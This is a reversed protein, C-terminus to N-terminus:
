VWTPRLVAALSTKRPEASASQPRGLSAQRVDNTVHAGYYTLGIGLNDAGAGAGRQEWLLQGGKYFQLTPFCYM